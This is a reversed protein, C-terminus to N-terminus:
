PPNFGRQELETLIQSNSIRNKWSNVVFAKHKNWTANSAVVRGDPDCHIFTPSHVDTPGQACSDM